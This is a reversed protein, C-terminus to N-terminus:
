NKITYNLESLKFMDDNFTEEKFKKNKIQEKMLELNAKNHLDCDDCMENITLVCKNKYEEFIIEKEKGSITGLTIDMIVDREWDEVGERLLNNLETFIEKNTKNINVSENVKKDITNENIYKSVVKISNYTEVINKSNKPKSILFEYSENLDKNENLINDLDNANLSSLKIGEKVIERIKKEGNILKKADINKTVTEFLNLLTAENINQPLNKIQKYLQYSEKLSLNNRIIGVFEKIIGRGEKTNFLDHTISEFLQKLSGFNANNVSEIKENLEIQEVRKDLTKSFSEKLKLLDKKNNLDINKMKNM